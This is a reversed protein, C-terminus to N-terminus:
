RIVLKEKYGTPRYVHEVSRKKPAFGGELKRERINLRVPDGEEGKLNGRRRCDLHNVGYDTTSFPGTYGQPQPNPLTNPLAAALGALLILITAKM